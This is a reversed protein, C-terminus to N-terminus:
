SVCLSRVCRRVRQIACHGEGAAASPQPNYPKLCLKPGMVCQRVRRVARHGRGAAAQAQPPAGLRQAADRDQLHGPDAARGRHADRAGDHRGAGPDGGAAISSIMERSCLPALQWSSHNNCHSCHEALTNNTHNNVLLHSSSIDSRGNHPSCCGGLHMAALPGDARENQNTDELMLVHTQLSTRSCPPQADGEPNLRLLRRRQRGGLPPRQAAGGRQGVATGGAGRQEAEQIRLMSAEAAAGSAICLFDAAFQVQRADLLQCVTLYSGSIRQPRFDWRLTHCANDAAWQLTPGPSRLRVAGTTPLPPPSGRRAAATCGARLL